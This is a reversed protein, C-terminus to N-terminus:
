HGIQGDLRVQDRRQENLVQPHVLDGEREVLEFRVDEEREDEVLLEVDARAGAPLGLDDEELEEVGHLEPVAGLREDIVQCIKAASPGSVFGFVEFLAAM